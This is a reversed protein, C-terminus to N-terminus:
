RPTRLNRFLQSQTPCVQGCWWKQDWRSAWDSKRHNEAGRRGRKPANAATRQFPQRTGAAAPQVDNPFHCLATRQRLFAATFLLSLLSLQALVDFFLSLFYFFLARQPLACSSNRTRVFILSHLKNYDQLPFLLFEVLLFLLFAAITRCLPSPLNRRAPSSLFLLLRVSTCQSSSLSFSLLASSSSSLQMQWFLLGFALLYTRFPM